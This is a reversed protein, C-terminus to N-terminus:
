RLHRWMEKIGNQKNSFKSMFYNVEARRILTHLVNNYQKYNTENEATRNLIFSKFLIHNKKISQKITTMVWPKGKARKRALRLVPFSSIYCEALKQYFIAM